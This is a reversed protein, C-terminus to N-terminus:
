FIIKQKKKGQIQMAHRSKFSQFHINYISAPFTFKYNGAKKNIKKSFFSIFFM